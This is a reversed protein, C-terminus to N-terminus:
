RCLTHNPTSVHHRVASALGGKAGKLHPVSVLLMAADDELESTMMESVVQDWVNDAIAQLDEGQAVSALICEHLREEGMIRSHVRSRAEVFGDTLLVLIDDPQLYCTDNEFVSDVSIGVVTGTPMLTEISRGKGRVVIPPEHGASAFEFRGTEPTLVGYFLTVLTDFQYQHILATNLRAVTTSPEDGLLAYARLINKILATQAAAEIGHGTVDGIFMAIRGDELPVVDLFDGGIGRDSSAPRYILGTQVSIMKPPLAPLLSKQLTSNIRRERALSLVTERQLRRELTTDEVVLGIHTADGNPGAIPFYSVRFDNFADPSGPIRLRVDRNPVTNGEFVVDRVRDHMDALEPHVAALPQGVVDSQVKGMIMSLYQNYRTIRDNHDLLAIGIPAHEFVFGITANQEAVRSNLQAEEAAISIHDAVSAVLAVEAKTWNRHRSCSHVSLLGVVRGDITIRSVVCSRVGFMDRVAPTMRSDSYTNNIALAKGTWNLNRVSNPSPPPLVIGKMSQCGPLLWEHQLSLMEDGIEPSLPLIYARDVSLASGLAAVAADLVGSVDTANRVQDSLDALTEARQLALRENQVLKVQRAALVGVCAQGFIDILHDATEIADAHAIVAGLTQTDLLLCTATVALTWRPARLGTSLLIPVVFLINIAFM